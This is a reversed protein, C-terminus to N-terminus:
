YCSEHFRLERICGSFFHNINYDCNKYKTKFHQDIVDVYCDAVVDDPAGGPHNKDLYPMIEIMHRIQEVRIRPHAQGTKKEYAEFYHRFVQLVEDLTYPSERIEKYAMEAYASFAQFDFLM